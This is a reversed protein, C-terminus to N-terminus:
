LIFTCYDIIAVYVMLNMNTGLYTLRLMIGISVLEFLFIAGLGIKKFEILKGENDRLPVFFYMQVLRSVMVIIIHAYKM